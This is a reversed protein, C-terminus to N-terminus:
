SVYIRSKLPAAWNGFIGNCIQGVKIKSTKSPPRVGCGNWGWLSHPNIRHGDAGPIARVHRTRVLYLEDLRAIAEREKPSISM